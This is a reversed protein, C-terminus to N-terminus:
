ISKTHVHACVALKVRAFANVGWSLGRCPACRDGGGCECILLSSVCLQCCLFGGQFPGRPPCLPRRCLWPARLAATQGEAHFGALPCGLGEWTSLAAWRAPPM